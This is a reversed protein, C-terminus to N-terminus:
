DVIWSAEKKIGKYQFPNDVLLNFQDLPMSVGYEQNTLLQTIESM